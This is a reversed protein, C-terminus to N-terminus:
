VKFPEIKCYAAFRQAEAVILDSVGGSKLVIHVGMGSGLAQATQDATLIRLVPINGAACLRSLKERGDSAADTAELLCAVPGKRLAEEAKEFGSVVQGAKKAVGLLEQLRKFFLNALLENM